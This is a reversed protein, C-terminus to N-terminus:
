SRVERLRRHIALLSPIAVITSVIVILLGLGTDDVADVLLVDAAIFGYLFAYLVFAERRTRVGWAIVAISFAIALLCGAVLWRKEFMLAFAAGFALNAAFHEFVAAFEAVRNAVRWMILIAACTFARLSYEAASGGWWWQRSVGLWAALAAISLSLLVRSRYAYAGAAHVVAVILFQRYWKDGFLHFQSEVFAVDASLLLGGLLLVYDDVLSQGARRRWIWVYCAAAAVGMLAAIAIPGIRDYNNKLILGAATALLMAGGWALIRLEPHVSFVDRRERAILADATANGILPRLRELEPELSLM